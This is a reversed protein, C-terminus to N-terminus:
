FFKTSATLFYRSEWEGRAGLAPLVVSGVVGRLRPVLLLLETGDSIRGSAICLVWSYVLGLFVVQPAGAGRRDPTTNRRFGTELAAFEQLMPMTQVARGLLVGGTATRCHGRASGFSGAGGSGRAQLTGFGDAPLHRTDIFLKSVALM